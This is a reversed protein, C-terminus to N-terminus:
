ARLREIAQALIVYLKGMDSSLLTVGLPSGDRLTLIQRLMAEFDHIYRNVHDRFADDNDYMSAIERAEGHDLLRVARRTFVGRDGKLYAAWASDTVDTAFVKTLDIASSNLAEILLSVRRAFNDSDAEEIEIRADAVQRRVSETAESIQLMQRSLKESADAAAAVAADSANTLDALQVAITREAARGLAKAADRELTASAEPIIATLTEKAKIAAANATNHINVLADVLQPATEDAFRRTGEVTEDVIDKVGSIQDRGMDLKELLQQSVIALTDRQQRVVGAIAEIADHTSEAATVLALLEPKASAVISRSEGIRADLRALAEPMTDDMERAAADLATLLEEATGIVQRASYQGNEMSEKLSESTETLASISAALEQSRQMGNTHLLEFRQDAQGAGETLSVILSDGKAQQESLREALADIAAGITDIRAQLAAASNLAAQNTALMAMMADGQATIGQRAQEVAQAARELVGDVTASMEGTVVELRAGAAESTSEMRAIHAALRQAAGGAINDADRGRDALASLQADLAAAQESAALGTTEIRTAMEAAEAQARPLSSLVVSLKREASDAADGLLRANQDIVRSQESMGNGILQLREAASDGIAMLATTQEAIMARNSELKRSLAEVVRELSAAEARMSAATAGFRRAEAQSTRMALLWVIGILVPPVCLAAVFLTLQIPDIPAMLRPLALYLMGGLWAVVILGALLAWGRNSPPAPIDEDAIEAGLWDPEAAQEVITEDQPQDNLAMDGDNASRLERIRHGGTM